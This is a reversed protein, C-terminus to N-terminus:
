LRGLEPRWNWGHALFKHIIKLCFAGSRITMAAIGCRMSFNTELDTGTAISRGIASCDNRDVIIPNGDKGQTGGIEAGAAAM